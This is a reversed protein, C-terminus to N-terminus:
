MTPLFHVKLPLFSIMFIFGNRLNVLKHANMPNTGQRVRQRHTKGHRLLRKSRHSCVRDRLPLLVSLDQRHNRELGRESFTPLNRAVRRQSKRSAKCFRFMNRETQGSLVFREM